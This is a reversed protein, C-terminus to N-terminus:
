LLQSQKKASGEFLEAYDPIRNQQGIASKFIENGSSTVPATEHYQVLDYLKKHVVQNTGLFQYGIDIREILFHKFTGDGVCYSVTYGWIRDSVRVLFSGAGKRFLLKEATDRSIIGHFWIAPQKTKPDLGADDPLERDRFWQIIADRGSPKPLKPLKKIAEKFSINKNLGNLVTLLSSSTRLEQKRHAERAKMAIDRIRQEAEKARKEQEEWEMLQRQSEMETQVKIRQREEKLKDFIQSQRQHLEPEIIKLKAKANAVISSPLPPQQSLLPALNDPELPISPKTVLPVDNGIVSSTHKAVRSGNTTGNVKGQTPFSEFQSLLNKVGLSEQDFMTHSPSDSFNVDNSVVNNKATLYNDNKDNPIQANKDVPIKKVPPYRPITGNVNQVKKFDLAPINENGNSQVFKHVNNGNQSKNIYQSAPEFSVRNKPNYEKVAEPIIEMKGLTKKLQEESLNENDKMNDAKMLWEISMEKEALNKAKLRLQEEEELDDESKESEVDGMVWTWVRDDKGQLWRIRRTSPINAAITGERLCKDYMDENENYRRVQEDRMKCFLLQKQEEGLEALLEPEVYMQYDVDGFIGESSDWGDICNTEYNTMLPKFKLDDIEELETQLSKQGYAPNTELLQHQIPLDNVRKVMTHENFSNELKLGNLQRELNRVKSSSIGTSHVADDMSQLTLADLTEFTSSLMPHYPRSAILNVNNEKEYEQKAERADGEFASKLAKKGESGTSQSSTSSFTNKYLHQPLNNQNPYYPFDPIVEQQCPSPYCYMNPDYNTLYPVFEQFSPQSADVADQHQTFAEALFAKKLSRPTTPVFEKAKLWENPNIKKFAKAKEKEQEQKIVDFYEQPLRDEEDFVLRAILPSAVITEM